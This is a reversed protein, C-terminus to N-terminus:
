EEVELPQYFKCQQENSTMLECDGDLYYFREVVMQLPATSQLTGEIIVDQEPDLSSVIEPLSNNILYPQVQSWSGRLQFSASLPYMTLIEPNFRHLDFFPQYLDVTEDGTNMTQGWLPYFSGGNTTPYGTFTLSQGPHIVDRLSNTSPFPRLSGPLMGLGFYSRLDVEYAVGETDVLTFDYTPPNAETEVVGSITQPAAAFDIRELPSQYITLMLGQVWGTPIITEGDNDTAFQLTEIMTQFIEMEAPTRPAVGSHFYLNVIQNNDLIYLEIANAGGGGELFLFAPRGKVEGNQKVFGDALSIGSQLKHQQIWGLWNAGSFEFAQVTIFSGTEPAQFRKPRSPQIDWAQPLQFLVGPAESEEYWTWGVHPTPINTQDSVMVESALLSGAEGVTGTAQVQTGPEIDEWGVATGDQTLLRGNAALTITLFGDVPATLILSNDESIIEQVTAEISYIAQSTETEWDDPFEVGEAAVGQVVFTDIMARFIQQEAALWPSASFFHFIYTRSDVVITFTVEFRSGGGGEDVELQAPYGHWVADAKIEAAYPKTSFFIQSITEPSTYADDAYRGDFDWSQPRIYAYGAWDREVWAWGPPPSPLDYGESVQAWNDPLSTEGTSRNRMVFTEILTLFIQMESASQPITGSHLYFRILRDGDPAIFLLQPPVGGGGEDLRFYAPQGQLVANVMVTEPPLSDAPLFQTQHSRVWELWDTNAPLSHTDIFLLTGTEPSKFAPYRSDFAWTQPLQFAYAGGSLPHWQWGPHPTPLPLPTAPIDSAISTSFSTPSSIPLTVQPTARTVTSSSVTPNIRTTLSASKTQDTSAAQSSCAVLVLSLAVYLCYILKTSYMSYYFSSYTLPVSTNGVGNVYKKNSSTKM